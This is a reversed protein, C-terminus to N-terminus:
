AHDSNKYLSAQNDDVPKVGLANYNTSFTTYVAAAWQWQVTIGPTDTQFDGCWTVPNIGGPLGSSPVSFALGTLFTNGSLNPPVRTVWQNHAADFSTTASTAAPDFTVVASPASLNYNTNNASFQLTSNKFYITVPKTIQGQIHLVSNFWITRGAGIATGNFNSAICSRVTCPQPTNTPTAINSALAGAPANAVPAAPKAANVAPLSFNAAAAPRVQPQPFTSLCLSVVVLLTVLRRLRKKLLYPQFM